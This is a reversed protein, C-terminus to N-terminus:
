LQFPSAKVAALAEWTAGTTFFGGTLAPSTLSTPEIGPNPLAGPSPVAVWELIRAQLTERVPSSSPSRDVADCLTPCSQACMYVTIKNSVLQTLKFM